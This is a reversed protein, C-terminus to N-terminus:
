RQTKPLNGGATERNQEERQRPTAGQHQKRVFGKTKVFAIGVQSLANELPRHQLCCIMHVM